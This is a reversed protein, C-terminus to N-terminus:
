SARLGLLQSKLGHGQAEKGAAEVEPVHSFDQLLSRLNGIVRAYDATHVQEVKLYDVQRQVILKVDDVLSAPVPAGQVPPPLPVVNDHVVRGRTWNKPLQGRKRATSVMVAFQGHGIEFMKEVDTYTKDPNAAAYALALQVRERIPAHPM